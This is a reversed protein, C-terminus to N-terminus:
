DLVPITAALIESATVGADFNTVSGNSL